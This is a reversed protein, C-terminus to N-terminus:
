NAAPVCLDGKWAVGADRGTPAAASHFLGLDFVGLPGHDGTVRAAKGM